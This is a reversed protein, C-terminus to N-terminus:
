SDIQGARMSHLLGILLWFYGGLFQHAWWTEMFGAALYIVIVLAVAKVSGQFSTFGTLSKVIVRFFAALSIFGNELWLQLYLQHGHQVMGQFMGNAMSFSGYAEGFSGPGSGWQWYDGIIKLTNRWIQIRFGLTSESLNEPRIIRAKFGELNLLVLIGMWLYLLRNSFFGKGFWLIMAAIGLFWVTRSYTFFLSILGLTLAALPLARYIRGKSSIGSLALILISLLYLGYINPNGFVSYSRVSIYLSQGQELWHSPTLVGAAQQWLGIVMWILAALLSFGVVRRSFEATFVRGTMGAILFWVTATVLRGFGELGVAMLASLALALWFFLLGTGPFKKDPFRIVYLLSNLALLVGWSNLIPMLAVTLIIGAEVAKGWHRDMREWFPQNRRQRIAEVWTLIKRAGRFFLSREQISMFYNNVKKFFAEVVRKGKALGTFAESTHILGAWRAFKM